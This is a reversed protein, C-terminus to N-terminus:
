RRGIDIRRGKPVFRDRNIGSAPRERAGQTHGRSGPREGCDHEHVSGTRAVAVRRDARALRKAIQGLSEGCLADGDQAVVLARAHVRGSDRREGAERRFLLDDVIGHRRDPQQPRPPVDSGVAHEDEPM